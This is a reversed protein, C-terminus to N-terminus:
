DCRKVRSKMKIDMYSSPLLLARLNPEKDFAFEIASKALLEAKNKADTKDLAPLEVETDLIINISTKICFTEVSYDRM